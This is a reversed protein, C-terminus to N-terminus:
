NYYTTKRIRTVPKIKIIVFPILIIIEGEHILAGLSLSIVFETDFEPLLKVSKIKSNLVFAGIYISVLLIFLGVMEYTGLEHSSVIHFCVLSAVTPLVIVYFLKLIFNFVYKM